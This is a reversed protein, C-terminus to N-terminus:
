CLKHLVSLVYAFLPWVYIIAFIGPVWSEVHTVPWYIKKNRGRKLIDWETSYPRLPLKEEIQNVIGYKANNLNKYSRIISFWLISLVLGAINLLYIPSHLQAAYSVLSILATNIALFFANSIARRHSIKDAMEVYLKYQEFLLEEKGNAGYTDNFLHKQKM